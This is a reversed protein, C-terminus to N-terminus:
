PFKRQTRRQPTSTLFRFVVLNRSKFDRDVKIYNLNYLSLWYGNCEKGPNCLCICVGRRRFDPLFAGSIGYIIYPLDLYIPPSPSPPPIYPTPFRQNAVGVGGDQNRWINIQIKQIRKRIKRLTAKSNNYFLLFFRRSKRKRCGLMTLGVGKRRWLVVVEWCASTTGSQKTAELAVVCCCQM